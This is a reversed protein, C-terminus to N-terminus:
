MNLSGSQCSVTHYSVIIMLSFRCTILKHVAQMLTSSWFLIGCGQVVTVSGTIPRQQLQSLLLRLEVNRDSGEGHLLLLRQLSISLLVLAGKNWTL